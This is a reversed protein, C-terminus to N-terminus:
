KGTQPLPTTKSNLNRAAARNKIEAYQTQNLAPYYKMEANEIVRTRVLNNDILLNLLRQLDLMTHENKIQRNQYLETQTQPSKQWLAEMVPLAPQVNEINEITIETKGRILLYKSALQLALFAVPLIPLFATDRPRDMIHNLENRVERPVYNSTYRLDVKFPNVPYYDPTIYRNIDIGESENNVEIAHENLHDWDYLPLVPDPFYIDLLDSKIKWHSPQPVRLGYQAHVATSVLFFTLLFIMKYWFAMMVKLCPPM